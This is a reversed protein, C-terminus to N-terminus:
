KERESPAVIRMGLKTFIEEETRGAIRVDGDWLGYQNLKFRKGYKQGEKIAQARVIRNFFANGTLFLTMAGWEEESAVYLNVKMEQWSFDVKKRYIDIYGYGLAICAKQLDNVVVDIDGVFTKTGRRLSGCVIYKVGYEDLLKSLQRAKVEAEYIPVRVGKSM